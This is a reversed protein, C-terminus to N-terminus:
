GSITTRQRRRDLMHRVTRVALKRLEVAWLVASAMAICALWQEGTLPTTGFATNLVPVHVVAVQLVASLGIAGWL